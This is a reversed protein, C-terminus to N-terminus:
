GSIRKGVADRFWNRKSKKPCFVTHRISKLEETIKGDRVLKAESLGCKGKKSTAGLPAALYITM